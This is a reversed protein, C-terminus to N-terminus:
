QDDREPRQWSRGGPAPQRRARAEKISAALRNLLTGLQVTDAADWDVLFAAFRDYSKRVLRQLEEKGAPTLAVRFSRRDHPDGRLEVQGAEALAHIQRTVASLSLQMEAALDSPRIDTTEDVIQLVMLRSGDGQRERAKSLERGLALLGSTLVAIDEDDPTDPTM